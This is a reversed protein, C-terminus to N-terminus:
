LAVTRDLSVRAPAFASQWAALHSSDAFAPVVTRAASARVLTVNDSLRPHVNWRLFRARKSRTLREAPTGPPLYGTFVIDPLEAGEWAAV